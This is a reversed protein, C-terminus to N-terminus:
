LPSGVALGMCLLLAGIQARAQAAEGVARRLRDGLLNGGAICLALLGGILLTTGDAM